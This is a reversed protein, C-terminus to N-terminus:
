MHSVFAEKSIRETAPVPLTPTEVGVASLAPCIFLFYLGIVWINVLIPIVGKLYQTHDIYGRNTLDFISFMIEIDREAFLTVQLTGHKLL